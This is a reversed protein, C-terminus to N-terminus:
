RFYLGMQDRLDIQVTWIGNVPESINLFISQRGTTKMIVESNLEVRGESVRLPPVPSGDYFSVGM